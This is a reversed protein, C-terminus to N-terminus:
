VQAARVSGHRWTDGPTPRNGIGVARRPLFGRVGLGEGALPSPPLTSPNTRVACIFMMKLKEGRGKRSLPRPHRPEGDAPLRLAHRSSAQTKTSHDLDDVVAHAIQPAHLLGKFFDPGVGLDHTRRGLKRSGFFEHQGADASEAVRNGLELPRPKIPRHSFMDGGVLWEEADAQPQLQEEVHAVLVALPFPEAHQPAFDHPEGVLSVQLNRM